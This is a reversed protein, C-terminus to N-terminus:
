IQPVLLWDTKLQDSHKIYGESVGSEIAGVIQNYTRSRVYLLRPRNGIALAVSNRCAKMLKGDRLVSSLEIKEMYNQYKRTCYM